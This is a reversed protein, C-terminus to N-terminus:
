SGMTGRFVCHSLGDVEGDCTGHLLAVMTGHVDDSPAQTGFVGQKLRDVEGHCTGHLM